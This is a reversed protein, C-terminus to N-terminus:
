TLQDIEVHIFAETSTHQQQSNRDVVQEIRGDKNRNVLVIPHIVLHTTLNKSNLLMRISDVLFPMDDNVIEVITHPSQWGHKEFQPNYIRVKSEGPRRKAAFNWHALAAGYLDAAKSEMLDEAATNRYYKRIFQELNQQQSANVRKTMLTIVDDVIEASTAPKKEAM